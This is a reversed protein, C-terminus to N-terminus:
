HAPLKGLQIPFKACSYKLGLDLTLDAQAKLYM